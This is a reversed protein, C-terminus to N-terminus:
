SAAEGDHARMRERAFICDTQLPFNGGIVICPKSLAVLFGGACSCHSVICLVIRFVIFVIRIPARYGRLNHVAQSGLPGDMAPLADSIDSANRRTAENPGNQWRPGREGDHGCM